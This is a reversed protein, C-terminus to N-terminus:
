LNLKRSRDVDKLDDVLNKLTLCYKTISNSGKHTNCVHDQLQLMCSMKNNLIVGCTKQQTIM